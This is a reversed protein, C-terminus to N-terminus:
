LLPCNQREEWHLKSHCNACLVICKNIEEVVHELSYGAIMDSINYEKASKDPHHFQLTAPHKEGCKSCPHKTKYDEVWQFAKLRYAKNREIIKKFNKEYRLSDLEKICEKCAQQLGDKGKAMKSFAELSKEKGCKSCVKTSM